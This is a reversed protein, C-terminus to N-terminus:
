SLVERPRTEHPLATCPAAAQHHREELVARLDGHADEASCNIALRTCVDRWQGTCRPEEGAHLKDILDSTMLM